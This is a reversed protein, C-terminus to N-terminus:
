CRWHHAGEASPGVGHGGCRSARDRDRNSNLFITHTCVVRDQCRINPGMSEILGLAFQGCPRVERMSLFYEMSWDHDGAGSMLRRHIYWRVRHFDLFDSSNHLAHREQKLSNESYSLQRQAPDSPPILCEDILQVISVKAPVGGQIARTQREPPLKEENDLSM